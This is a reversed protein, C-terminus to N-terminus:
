YDLAGRMTGPGCEEGCFMPNDRSLDKHRDFMARLMEEEEREDGAKRARMGGWTPHKKAYDTGYMRVMYELDEIYRALEPDAEKLREREGASSYAGCLCDGSMGLIDHTPTIKLGNEHVYRYVEESTKYFFPSMFYMRGDRLIPSSYTKMRRSSEFKRVGSVLCHRDRDIDLAFNRMVQFKLYGMIVRHLSASPFGYEMVFASYVRYFKPREIYLKWGNKECTEIVFDRTKKVGIGTDIHVVAELKDQEALWHTIGVSDKGGSFMAFFRDRRHENMVESLIDEPRESKTEFMQYGSKMRRTPRREQIVEPM